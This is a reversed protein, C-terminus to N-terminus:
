FQLQKEKVKWVAITKLTAQKSTYSLNSDMKKIPQPEPSNMAIVKGSIKTVEIFHTAGKM